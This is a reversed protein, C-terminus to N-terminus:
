GRQERWSAPSAQSCQWRNPLIELMGLNPSVQCQKAIRLSNARATQRAGLAASRTAVSSQLYSKRQSQSCPSLCATRPRLMLPRSVPRTFRQLMSTSMQIRLHVTATKFHSIFVRTFYYETDLSQEITASLSRFRANTFRWHRWSSFYVFGKFTPNNTYSALKLPPYCDSDDAM